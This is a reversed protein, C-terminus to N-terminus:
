FKVGITVQAGHAIIDYTLGNGQYNMGLARYGVEVFMNRSIQYGLAAEVQWALQSGVTFGGLDGRGTLYWKQSLNLRGRLGIFPDWWDDVRSVGKDLGSELARAISQSLDRKIADIRQQAGQRIAEALEAKRADIIEQIRDRIPGPEPGAIPATPLAPRHDQIEQFRDKLSQEILDRLGSESLATRLRNGVADVLAASTEEIRQTNPQLAAAQYLNIYRVGAYVDLWGRPKDILRWRLAPEGIIEDFHVDMKKVLGDSEISSSLNMAIFDAMFGLRGKSVEGRFFAAMDLSQIVKDPPVDVHATHGNIGVEGNFSPLIAPVALTIHWEEDPPPGTIKEDKDAAFATAGFALGALASGIITLRTNHEMM